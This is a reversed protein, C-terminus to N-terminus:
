IGSFIAANRIKESRKPDKQISALREFLAPDVPRAPGPEMGLRLEVLM